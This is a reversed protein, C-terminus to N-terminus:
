KGVLTGDPNGVPSSHLFARSNSLSISRSEGASRNRLILDDGRRIFSVEALEKRPGARRVISLAAPAMVMSDSRAASVEEVEIFQRSADRIRVEGEEHAPPRAQEPKQEANPQTCGTTVLCLVVFSVVAPRFLWMAAPPALSPVTTGRIM